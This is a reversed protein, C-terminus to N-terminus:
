RERPREMAVTSVRFGVAEWFAQSEPRGARLVWTLRPDEGMLRRVIERGIGERRHAKDVAIMSIYGNSVDDCIARGFGIIEDDVYVTVRRDARRIASDFRDPDSARKAWGNAIMFARLGSLDPLDPSYSLVANETGCILWSLTRM